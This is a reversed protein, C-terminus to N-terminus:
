CAHIHSCNKNEIKDTDHRLNIIKKCEETVVQLTLKQEQQLKTLRWFYIDADKSATLGQAVSNILKM